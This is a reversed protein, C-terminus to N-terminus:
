KGVKIVGLPVREIANIRMGNPKWFFRNLTNIKVPHRVNSLQGVSTYFYKSPSDEYSFNIRGQEFRWVEGACECTIADVYCHNFERWFLDYKRYRLATSDSYVISDIYPPDYKYYDIVVYDLGYRIHSDPGYPGLFKEVIKGDKVIMGVPHPLVQFTDLLISDGSWRWKASKNHFLFVSFEIDESYVLRGNEFVNRRTPSSGSGTPNWNISDIHFGTSQINLNEFGPGFSLYCVNYGSISEGVVGILFLLFMFM